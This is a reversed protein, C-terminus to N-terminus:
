EEGSIMVSRHRGKERRAWEGGIVRESRYRRGPAQGAAEKKTM